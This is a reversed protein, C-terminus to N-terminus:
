SKQAVVRLFAKGRRLLHTKNAKDTYCFNLREFEAKLAHYQGQSINAAKGLAPRSFNCGDKVVAEAVGTLLDITIRDDQFEQLIAQGQEFDWQEVKIVMEGPNPDSLSPPRHLVIKLIHLGIGVVLAGGAIVPGLHIDYWWAFSLLVGGTFIGALAYTAGDSAWFNAHQKIEVPYYDPAEVFPSNALNKFTSLPSGSVDGGPPLNHKLPIAKIQGKCHPCTLINNAM